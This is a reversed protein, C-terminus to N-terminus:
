KARPTLYKVLDKMKDMWLHTGTPTNQATKLAERAYGLAKRFQQKQLFGPKMKQAIKCHIVAINYMSSAIDPHNEPLATKRVELAKEQYELAKTHDGLDGYTSGVNDYSAALYPHNEPLALKCSRFLM